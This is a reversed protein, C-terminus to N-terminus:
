EEGGNWQEYMAGLYAEHSYDYYEECIHDIGKWNPKFGIRDAWMQYFDESIYGIHYAKSLMFQIERTAYKGSKIALFINKATVEWPDDNIPVVGACVSCYTEGAVLKGCKKCRNLKILQKAM